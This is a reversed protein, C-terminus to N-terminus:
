QAAKVGEVHTWTGTIAGPFVYDSVIKTNIVAQAPLWFLSVQGHYPFTYDGLERWLEDQKKADVTSYLQRVVGEVKADQVGSAGPNRGATTITYVM